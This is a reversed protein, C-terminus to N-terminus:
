SNFYWVCFGAVDVAPILVVSIIVWRMWSPLVAVVSTGKGMTQDIDSESVFQVGFVLKTFWNTLPMLWMEQMSIGLALILVDIIFTLFYVTILFPLLCVFLLYDCICKGTGM